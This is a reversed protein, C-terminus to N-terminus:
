KDLVEQSKKAVRVKKGDKLIKYEIRSPKNKKPDILQVNSIQIPAFFELRQGEEGQRQPKKHRVLKNVGDVIVKGKASLVEIVKGKQGRDKGAIVLVLDDKKIRTKM